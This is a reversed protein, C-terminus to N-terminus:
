RTLLEIAQPISLDAGLPRFDQHVSHQQRSITKFFLARGDINTDVSTTKWVNPAILDRTTSFSSDSHITAILGYAFTVENSLRGELHHLRTRHEDILMTGSMGHLVREEFTQPIYAPNPHYNIRLWPGDHGPSEFLFARPLLELMQQAHHEDSKRAQEHHIFDDPNAAIAKLRAIEASRRDSSLPKGDEDILYRLKGQSIEAVRETWLHGHTRDSREVSTYLFPPKQQAASRENAILAIIRQQLTSGQARIQSAFLITVLVTVRPLSFISKRRELCGNSAM